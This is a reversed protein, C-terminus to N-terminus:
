PLQANYGPAIVRQKIFCNIHAACVIVCFNTEDPYAITKNTQACSFSKTKMCM